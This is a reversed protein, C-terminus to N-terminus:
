RGQAVIQRGTIEVWQNEMRGKSPLTSVPGPSPGMKCIFFSLSLTLPILMFNSLWSLASSPYPSQSRENLGVSPGAPNCQGLQAAFIETSVFLSVRNGTLQSFPICIVLCVNLSM